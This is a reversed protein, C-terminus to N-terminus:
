RRLCTLTHEVWQREWHVKGCSSTELLKEPRRLEVLKVETFFKQLKEPEIVKHVKAM